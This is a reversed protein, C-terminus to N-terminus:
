RDMPMNVLIFVSFLFLGMLFLFAATRSLIIGWKTDAKKPARVNPAHSLIDSISVNITEISKQYARSTARFSFAGSTASLLLALCAAVLIRLEVLKSIMEPPMKLFGAICVGIVALSTTILSKQYASSSTLVIERQYARQDQLEDKRESRNKDGNSPNGPADM